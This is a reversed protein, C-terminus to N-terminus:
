ASHNHVCYGSLLRVNKVVSLIIGFIFIFDVDASFTDLLCVRGSPNKWLILLRFSYLKHCLYFSRGGCYNKYM